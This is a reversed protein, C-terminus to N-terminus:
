RSSGSIRASNTSVFGIQTLCATANMPLHALSNRIGSTGIVAAGASRKRMAIFSSRRMQRTTAHSLGVVLLVPDFDVRVPMARVVFNKRKMGRHFRQQAREIELGTQADEVDAGAGAVGGELKRPAHSGAAFHGADIDVGLEDLSRASARALRPQRRLEHM